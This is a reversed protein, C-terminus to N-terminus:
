EKVAAPSKAVLVPCKANQVIKEAVSGMLLKSIGTRGLTGMVILDYEGAEAEQLIVKSPVGEILKEEAVIGAEKAKEAVYSTALSGEKELADYVNVLSSDMPSSAYVTRDLVYIATVKGGSLSALEIAVDVARKTFESGDTPVLIKKFSM